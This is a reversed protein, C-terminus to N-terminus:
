KTKKKKPKSSILWIAKIDPADLQIANGDSDFVIGYWERGARGVIFMKSDLKILYQLGVKIDPHTCIEGDDKIKNLDIPILYPTKM